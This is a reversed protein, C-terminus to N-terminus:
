RLVFVLAAISRFRRQGAGNRQGALGTRRRSWVIRRERISMGTTTVTMTGDRWARCTLDMDRNSKVIAAM